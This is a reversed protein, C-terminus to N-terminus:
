TASPCFTITYGTTNTSSVATNCSFTSSATDDPYVLATPCATKLWTVTPLVYTAWDSNTNVCQTTNPSPPVPLSTPSMDWNQCGCCSTTAGAAYCSSLNTGSVPACALLNAVTGAPTTTTTNCQFYTSADTPNLGCATNASWYGLQVGCTQQFTPTQSTSYSLGCVQGAVTCDGNTTCATPTAVATVWVYDVGPVNTSLGTTWNCAGLNTLKLNNPSPSGPNGCNYYSPTNTTVPTISLGVNVGGAINVDYTDSANYVLTMQGLTAPQAFNTGPSCANAGGSSSCDATQCSSGSCGTQAAINGAWITPSSTTAHLDPVIVTNTGGSATLHFSNNAPAPNTWYCTSNTTNCTSGAPCDATTTCPSSVAAGSFSFWVDVPCNNNFTITRGVNTSTTLTISPLAYNFTAQLSYPGTTTASFTGNITCTSNAAITGTCTNTTPTFTGGDPTATSSSIGSLTTTAHNTFTFAAPTTGNIGSNSLLQTSVAGTVAPNVTTGTSLPFSGGDYNFTATINYSGTATATLNGTIVCSDGAALTSACTSPSYDSNNPTTVVVPNVGTITGTGTNTFTFTATTPSFAYISGPLATTLTATLDQSATTGESVPVSGGAYSFTVTINYPGTSSATLNGTVTCSDGIGLTTSTCNNTYAFDGANPTTIVIPTNIGTITGNGKNTFTFTVPTPTGTSINAPLQTTVSGTVDASAVTTTKVKTQGGTYNLISVIKYTNPINTTFTGAVTCSDGPVMSTTTSCTNTGAVFGTPYNFSYSVNDVTGASNNTFTFLVNVPEQGTGLTSPLPTTVTGTILSASSTSASTYMVPLNVINSDYEMTLALSKSGATTPTFIFSVSCSQKSALKRGSCNDTVVFEGSVRNKIYLPSPMTFPMNNTFVYTGNYTEGVNSQAPPLTGSLSWGVPDSGANAGAAALVLLVIASSYRLWKM